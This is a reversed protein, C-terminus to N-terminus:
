GELKYLDRMDYLHTAFFFLPKPSKPSSAVCQFAQLACGAVALLSFALM